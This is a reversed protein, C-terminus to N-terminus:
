STQWRTGGAALLQDAAEPGWAGAAYRLPKPQDKLLPSYLEWSAEVEDARVFHTQDGMIVDLILTQYAEPLKEFADAYRFELSHQELQLKDGPAKVDFSLNFAEDPQLRIRLVDPTPDCHGLPDFLNVPPERLVIAVETVTRTLRKGTRVYFPVGQWRWNDISLKLAVYTETRSDAPVGDEETYGCVAEGDNKGAAYQGFVVDEAPISDISRLVRLKEDRVADANFRSPADMAILTLLQTLHNQIMDRLAGAKDYYGARDGIGFNEAVTIQVNQIRDRNWASEFLMNAFRFVALNQVTEKGLFHDIRYVSSEDFHRLVVRNLERASELDRGFPKEIVVRTWGESKHLGVAGIEEITSGFAGPPIALYFIRNGGLQKEKEIEAVREALGDYSRDLNKGVPQFRLCRECWRKADEPSAGSEELVGSAWRQYRADDWDRRSAGILIFDERLHGHQHLQFLAPLLKRRALDGSGGLAVFLHAEHQATM